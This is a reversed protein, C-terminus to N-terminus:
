GLLFSEKKQGKFAYWQGYSKRLYKNQQFLSKWKVEAQLISLESECVSIIEELEDEAFGGELIVDIVMETRSKEKDKIRKVM